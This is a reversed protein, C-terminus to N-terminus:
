RIKDLSIQVENEIKELLNLSYFRSTSHYIVKGKKFDFMSIELQYKTTDSRLILGFDANLNSYNTKVYNEDLKSTTFINETKWISKSGTEPHDWYSYVIIFKNNREVAKFASDYQNKSTFNSWRDKEFISPLFALSIKSSPNNNQLEKIESYNSEDNIEKLSKTNLNVANESQPNIKNFNKSQSDESKINKKIHQKSKSNITSFKEIFIEAIEAFSGNPFKDLYSQYLRVDKSDKISEWYLIEVSKSQHDEKTYYMEKNLSVFYFNATLSSSEWPVQQNNSKKMVDIRVKKFCDEISLNEYNIYKLLKSTYLGNRGEGDIAVSGPATAYALISGAPAEMKALGISSTRFKSVFPNNRCADLIIINIGNGADEMKGLVRGAEVTEFKIDSESEVNADIPVLFNRGSVQVGHGAYYFLGVGGKRLKKGFQMIENEMSRQDANIKLTVIFGLRKLSDAIDIADNAPNALPSIYKYSSNGIVLAFGKVESSLWLDIKRESKAAIAYGSIFISFILIAIVYIFHINNSSRPSPLDWWQGFFMEIRKISINFLCIHKQSKSYICVKLKM